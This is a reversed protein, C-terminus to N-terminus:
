SPATTPAAETRPRPVAALGLGLLVCGGGVVFLLSLTPQGLWEWMPHWSPHPEDLHHQVMLPVAFLTPAWWLLMTAGFLTTVVGGALRRGDTRRSAWGFLLFAVVAGALGGGVAFPYVAPPTARQLSATLFTSATTSESNVQLTLTTNGRQAVVTTDTPIASSDCPPGICGYMNRVIPRYVTWGTERLRQRALDLTEQPPRVPIGDVAGGVSALSYEGGDGFLMSNADDWGLPHGYIVFMAPADEIGRLDQGPLIEALMARTQGARPLPEATEWGARTAFAAAFVGGIIAALVAWAAVTRSAPRGLRARLGHRILNAAERVTPRSRGPPAAEILTALLEDRRHARPYCFLLRRYRRALAGTM